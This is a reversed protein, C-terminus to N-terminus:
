VEASLDRKRDMYEMVVAAILLVVAFLPLFSVRQAVLVYITGVTALLICPGSTAGKFVERVARVGARFSIVGGILFVILLIIQWKTTLPVNIIAHAIMPPILSRSYAYVIGLGLALCFLSVVMTINYLNAILYQRHAFVFLCSTGFIAPGDGWDEALRRQYYGRFLLEELVPVVAYSLIGALLWFQWRRWDMNFFAQRWPAMAGLPHVADILSHILVPWQSLCAATGGATILWHWSHGARTLGYASAGRRRSWWYLPIILLFFSGYQLLWILLLRRSALVLDANTAHSTLLEFPDALARPRWHTFLRILGNELVGAALYVGLVELLAALRESASSMRMHLLKCACVPATKQLGGRKALSLLVHPDIGLFRSRTVSEDRPAM